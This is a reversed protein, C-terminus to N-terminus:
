TSIYLTEESDIDGNKVAFAYFPCEIAELYLNKLGSSVVGKEGPIVTVVLGFVHQLNRRLDKRPLVSQTLCTIKAFHSTLSAM